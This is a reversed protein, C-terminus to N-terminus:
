FTVQGRVWVTRGPMNVAYRDPDGIDVRDIHERYNKDFLNEVGVSIEAFKQPRLSAFLDVTAFGDTEQDDEGSGTLPDIDARDQRSVARLRGGVSWIEESYELTVQGELPPIQALPRDDETNHGYVYQSWLGLKWGPAFRWDFAAAVALIRADANRYINSGDSILVGDQGRAKDRIIFDEVFDAYGGLGFGYPGRAIKVGAAIKHHAEPDIEPNGAWTKFGGPTGPPGVWSSLYREHMDATRMYRGAEVFWQGAESETAGLFDREYRLSGSFNNEAAPDSGNVGYTQMWQQNSTLPAGAPRGAQVENAKAAEGEVRDYQAWLKLRQKATLALAGEYIVSYQTITADAFNLNQKALSGLVPHDRYRTAYRNEDRFGFGFMHQVPGTRTGLMIKLERERNDLLVRGKPTGPTLTRLVFNENRRDIERLLGDVAVKNILTDNDDYRYTLTGYVIDLKPTDVPATAFLIDRRDVVGGSLLFKHIPSLYGIAGNAVRKTEGFRVTKGAGDEYSGSEEAYTMARFLVGDVLASGGAFAERRDCNGTYATGIKGHVGARAKLGPNAGAPVFTGKPGGYYHGCRSLDYRPVNRFLRTNTAQFTLFPYDFDVKKRPPTKKEAAAPAAAEEDRGAEADAGFAAAPALAALGALVMALRRIAM